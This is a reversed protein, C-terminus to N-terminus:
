LIKVQVAVALAMLRSLLHEPYHNLAWTEHLVRACINPSDRTGNAPVSNCTRGGTKGDGGRLECKDQVLSLVRCSGQCLQVINIKQLPASITKLPNPANICYWLDALNGENIRVMVNHSQQACNLEEQIGNQAHTWMKPILELFETVSQAM